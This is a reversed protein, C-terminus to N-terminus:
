NNLCVRWSNQFGRSIRPSTRVQWSKWYHPTRQEAPSACEWTPCYYITVSRILAKNLPLNTNRSFRWSRFLSYTRVYARLAQSFLWLSLIRIEAMRRDFTVGHYTINYVFPIDPGNLQLVDDAVRLDKPSISRRLKGNMQIWTGPNVGRIWQLSDANCNASFVVNTNRHRTFVTITRSSLLILELHRSPM